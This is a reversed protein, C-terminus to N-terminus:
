ARGPRQGGGGAGGSGARGAWLLGRLTLAYVTPHTLDALDHGIASFFVRGAGWRRTWVVPMPVPLAHPGGGTPALTTTALVDNLSDTLMWYQETHLTFGELGAVIPHGARAPDIVVDYEVSDGPHCLFLGGVMRHYARDDFAAVVGGHWGAFGTGAEVASLLGASQRGTLAGDTWCQVVLDTAALLDADTYVDLDDAVTVDFGADALGPIFLGTAEAPVHGEWGGRVVLAHRTM